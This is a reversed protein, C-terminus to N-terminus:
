ATTRMSRCSFRGQMIGRSAAAVATQRPPVPFGHIEDKVVLLRVTITKGHGISCIADEFSQGVGRPPGDEFPESAVAIKRNVSQRRAGSDRLGHDRLVEGSELACPQNAM